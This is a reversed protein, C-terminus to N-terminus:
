AHELPMAGEIAHIKEPVEMKPLSTLAPQIKQLIALLSTDIEANSTDKQFWRKWLAVNESALENISYKVYQSGYHPLTKVEKGSAFQPSLEALGVNMNEPVIRQLVKQVVDISPEQIVEDGQLLESAPYRTM